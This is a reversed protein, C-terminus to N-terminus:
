SKSYTTLLPAPFNGYTITFKKWNRCKERWNMKLTNVNGESKKLSGNIM